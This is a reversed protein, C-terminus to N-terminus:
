ASGGVRRDAKVKKAWRWLSPSVSGVRSDDEEHWVVEVGCENCIKLTAEVDELMAADEASTVVSKLDDPQLPTEWIGVLPPALHEFIAEVLETPLRDLM